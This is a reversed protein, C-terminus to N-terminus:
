NSTIVKMFANFKAAELKSVLAEANGKIEFVGCQVKWVGNEDKVFAPFNADLLRLRLAEANERSAFAGTQVVYQENYVSPSDSDVSIVDSDFKDLEFRKIINTIKPIYNVDTAYEGNKILTIQETYNKCNQIGEYRLKKGNMAGLLYACRDSISDEICPYKRFGAVITYPTGDPKNELTSKEYSSSGDWKSDKWTNGSLSTKMGCVNNAKLALETGCYGSELITQAAAVSPLLNYSVAIPRVIELIKNAITSENGLSNVDSAQTGILVPKPEEKKKNSFLSKGDEDFVSYEVPCNAIANKLEEYANIQSDKDNWSKRVRYFYKPKSDLKSKFEDWTWSTERKNNTCYPAPCWKATVDTHRIVHDADINLEEMLYKVLEVTANQTEETFYWEEDTAQAIKPHYDGDYKVCMEIGVSNSNKCIKYFPHPGSGQLGGGCHWSYFNYYDNGQWIAGDHGVWFDASANANSDSKYYDTNEKADGLAGVYHIVIFEIDDKTRKKSTHNISMLNKNIKIM